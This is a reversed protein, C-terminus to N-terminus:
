ACQALLRHLEDPDMPKAFHHAIGAERSKKRDEDTAYGSIAIMLARDLSAEQRLRPALEYGSLGPLGIDLLVIDPRLSRATALATAADHAVQVEHGWMKLLLRISEAADRNDDVILIRRCRANAISAQRDASAAQPQIEKQEEALPLRVIFEAGKGLGASEASVTGGHMEVLSRVLALGIGLGGQSRDVESNGQTFADFICPLMQPAIGIGEDQVSLVIEPGQRRASLRIVGPRQSFKGANHLLNGIVQALRALDAELWLFEAPLSVSLELGRESLFPRGSEVARNVVEAM